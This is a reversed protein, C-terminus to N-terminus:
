PAVFDAREGTVDEIPLGRWRVVCERIVRSRLRLERFKLVEEPVLELQGEEDLPPLEESTGIFQRVTKKLCSIHFVNQIRSDGFVLDVLTPADYGYLAKFPTMGISIPFTTDYCHEGLHLWRVWARQQGSMYKRLYGEVWKNVIETQGDM